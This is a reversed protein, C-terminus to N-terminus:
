ALLDSLVEGYIDTLRYSRGQFFFTLKEHDFGLLHLMTAQLDYVTTKDKVTYYGLEDTEGRVYGKNLGGGAMWTCYAHPHHDRGINSMTKGGRNERMPTRGFEGSWVILTEDLLGRQKLDKILAAIPRETQRCKDM